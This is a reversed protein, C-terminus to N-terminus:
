RERQKDKKTEESREAERSRRNQESTDLYDTDRESGKDTGKIMSQFTFHM